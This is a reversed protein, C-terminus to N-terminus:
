AAARIEFCMVNSSKVNRRSTVEPFDRLLVASHEASGCVPDTTQESIRKSSSNQRLLLAPNRLVEPM